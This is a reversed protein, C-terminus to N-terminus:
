GTIQHLLSSPRDGLLKRIGADFTVLVGAQQEAVALLHADTVDRHSGILATSGRGGTVLAVEDGWFTHGSLGTLATLLEIAFEPSTATAIAARNSSVRVFGSETVPTSAWGAQHYTDFWRRAARHHVHNPWALAILVNVDLLARGRLPATTM